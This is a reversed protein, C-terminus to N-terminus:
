NARKRRANSLLGIIGSGFLWVAAPVPVVSARNANLVISHEFYSATFSVGADFGAVVINSFLGTIDSADAVGDDFTAITFSDGSFPNYGGFSEIRLTGALNIDGLVNLTDFNTLSGLQVDFIGTSTQTFDGAITLSGIDGVGPSLTGSNVLATSANLTQYTGNGELTGQNNFISNQVQLTTGADVKVVGQNTFNSNLQLKGSNVDVTGTNNFAVGITTTHNAASGTKRFTGSNNIAADAGTDTGGFNSITINNAGDGSAIFTGTSANNITGSGAGGSLNNFTNNFLLQGGNWTLTNENRLTRRGDLRLGNGSITTAGQLITTGTGRHDGFTILTPGSITLTGSGGLSGSSQRLSGLSSTTTTQLIGGTLSLQGTGSFSSVNVSGNRFVTNFSGLLVDDTTGPVFGTNWNGPLDWFSNNPGIWIVPASYVPNVSSALAVALVTKRLKFHNPITRASMKASKFDFHDKNNKQPM